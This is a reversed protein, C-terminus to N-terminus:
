NNGRNKRAVLYTNNAGLKLAKLCANVVSIILFVMMVPINMPFRFSDNISKTSSFRSFGIPEFIFLPRMETIQFGAESIMKKLSNPKFGHFHGGLPLYCWKRVFNQQQRKFFFGLVYHFVERIVKTPSHKELIATSLYVNISSFYLTTTLILLGGDKLLRNFESIAAEADEIHELVETSFVIAASRDPLPAKGNDILLVAKYPKKSALKVAEPSIDVGVIDLLSQKLHPFYPGSGCGFDLAVGDRPFSQEKLTALLRSSIEGISIATWDSMKGDFYASNYDFTKTKM